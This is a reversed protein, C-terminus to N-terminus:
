TEPNMSRRWAARELADTITGLVLYSGLWADSLARAAASARREEAFARPRADEAAVLLGELARAATPAMCARLLAAEQSVEGAHHATLSRRGGLVMRALRRELAGLPAVPEATTLSAAVLRGAAPAEIQSRGLADFALNVRGMRQDLLRLGPGRPAVAFAELFGARSRPVRAVVALEAGTAGGLLRLNEAWPFRPDDDGAVLRV